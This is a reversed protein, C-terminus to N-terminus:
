FRHLLLLYMFILGTYIFILPLQGGRKKKKLQYMFAKFCALRPMIITYFTMRGRLKESCAVARLGQHFNWIMKDVVCTFVCLKNKGRSLSSRPQQCAEVYNLKFLTTSMVAQLEHINFCGTWPKIFSCVQVVNNPGDHYILLTTWVHYFM